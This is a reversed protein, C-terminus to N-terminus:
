ISLTTQKTFTSMNNNIEWIKDLYICITHQPPNQKPALPHSAHLSFTSYIPLTTQKTFLKKFKIWKLGINASKFASICTININEYLSDRCLYFCRFLTQFAGPGIGANKFLLPVPGANRYLSESRPPKFRQSILKSRIGATKFVSPYGMKKTASVKHTPEFNNPILAIALFSSFTTKDTNYFRSYSRTRRHQTFNHNTISEM